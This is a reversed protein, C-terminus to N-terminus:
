QLAQQKDPTALITPWRIVAPTWRSTTVPVEVKRARALVRGLVTVLMRWTLSRTWITTMHVKHGLQPSGWSSLIMVITAEEPVTGLPTRTTWALLLAVGRGDEEPETSTPSRRCGTM